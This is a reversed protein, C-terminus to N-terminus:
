SAFISFTKRPERHRTPFAVSGDDEAQAQKIWAQVMEPVLEANDIALIAPSAPDAQETPDTSEGMHQAVLSLDQVNIVGDRNVDTRLNAPTGSGLDSAVLVLDIISVRGDQNVDWAPYEGVTITINPPVTPIIEHTISIFEFNKLTVQTEGGAKAKFTVSLLAGTGSIGSESIRASFLNTIKGEANDITGGQFFTGEGELKLFDGETVEIAELVNPDFTIDAQWGALDTINEANLNLTITDGALLNTAETASFSFGVGPPILTYETGEEFSFHGTIWHGKDVAVLLINAGQKLTVPFFHDFSSGRSWAPEDLGEHILEGNLWIKRKGESGVLM